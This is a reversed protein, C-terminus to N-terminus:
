LFPSVATEKGDFYGSLPAMVRVPAGPFGAAALAHDLDAALTGSAPARSVHLAPTLPDEYRFRFPEDPLGHAAFTERVAQEARDVAALLSPDLDTGYGFRTLLCPQAAQEPNAMGTAAAIARIAEKGIGAEALPSRIGLEALARLGPRYEAKDSRNTGDCLPQGGAASALATFVATKCHYCRDRPNQRLAPAALPDLEVITLPVGAERAWELAYAHERSPVHPGHVHLARAPVGARLAMHLLFRSDLGGSYAVALGGGPAEAALSRLIGDLAAAKGSLGEAEPM